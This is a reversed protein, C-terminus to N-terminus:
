YHNRRIFHLSGLAKSFWDSLSCVTLTWCSFSFIWHPFNMSMHLATHNQKKRCYQWMKLPTVDNWCIYWTLLSEPIYTCTHVVSTCYHSPEWKQSPPLVGQSWHLPRCNVDCLMRVGMVIDAKQHVITFCNSKLDCPRQNLDWRLLCVLQDRSCTFTCKHFLFRHVRQLVTKQFIPSPVVVARMAWLAFGLLPM